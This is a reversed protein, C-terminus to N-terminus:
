SIRRGRKYQWRHNLLNLKLRRNMFRISSMKCSYKLSPYARRLYRGELSLFFMSLHQRVVVGLTLKSGVIESKSRFVICETSFIQLYLIYTSYGQRSTSARATNSKRNFKMAQKVSYNIYCVHFYLLQSRWIRGYAWV